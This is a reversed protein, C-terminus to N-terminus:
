SKEVVQNNTSTNLAPVELEQGKKTSDDSCPPFATAIPPASEAQTEGQANGAM